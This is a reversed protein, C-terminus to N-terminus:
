RLVQARWDFRRFEAYTAHTVVVDARKRRPTDYREHMEIPVRFGLSPDYRYTVTITARAPLRRTGGLIMESQVVAGTDPEVWFRGHAPLDSGDPKASFTPGKTERFAVIWTARGDVQDDGAKSFAVRKRSAPRLMRLAFTPLNVTRYYLDGGLNFRATESAMSMVREALQERPGSFLLTLRAGPEAVATGDVEHVDRVSVWDEDPLQLLLYDSRLTRQGKVRGGSDLWQQEYRESARITSLQDEYLVVYAHVRRMVDAFTFSAGQFGAGPEAACLVMAAVFPSCV